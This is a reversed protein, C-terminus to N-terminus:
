CFRRSRLNRSTHSRTTFGTNYLLFSNLYSKNEQMLIILKFNSYSVQLAYLSSNKPDPQVGVSVFPQYGYKALRTLLDVSSLINSRKEVLPWGGLDENLIEFFYPV